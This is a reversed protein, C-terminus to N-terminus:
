SRAHANLQNIAAGYRTSTHSAWLGVFQGLVKWSAAVARRGAAKDAM